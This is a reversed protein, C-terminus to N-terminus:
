RLRHGLDSLAKERQIEGSDVAAHDGGPIGPDGEGAGGLDGPNPVHREQRM